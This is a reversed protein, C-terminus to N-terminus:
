LARQYGAFFAQDMSSAQASFAFGNKNLALNVGIDRRDSSLNLSSSYLSGDGVSMPVNMGIRATSSEAFGILGFKTGSSLQGTVGAFLKSSNFGQHQILSSGSQEEISFQAGALFNKNKMTISSGISLKDESGYFAQDDSTQGAYANVSLYPSDFYASVGKKEPINYSSLSPNSVTAKIGMSVNNSAQVIGMYGLSGDQTNSVFENKLDIFVLSDDIANSFANGIPEFTLSANQGIEMVNYSQANMSRNLVQHVPSNYERIPTDYSLMFDREYSDVIATSVQVSEFGAPLSISAASVDLNEGAQPISSYGVPSFAAIMDVVGQGHLAIDYGTFSSDATDLLIQTTDRGSLGWREQILALAGSVNAAAGSTGITGGDETASLAPAVLFRDQVDTDTGSYNSWAALDENNFSAGVILIQNKANTKILDAFSGAIVIGDSVSTGDNGASHVLAIDQDVMMNKINKFELEYPELTGDPTTEFAAMLGGYSFSMNIISSGNDISREIAKMQSTTNTFGSNDSIILHNITVDPAMGYDVSGIVQAMDDGHNGKTLDTDGLSVINNGGDVTHRVNEVLNVNYPNSSGSERVGSDAVSVTIGAGTYGAEKWIEAKMQVANSTLSYGSSPIVIPNTPATVVGTGGGGCGSLLIVGSLALLVKAAM